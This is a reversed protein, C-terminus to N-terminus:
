IEYLGTHTITMKKILIEDGKGDLTGTECKTIIGQDIFFNKFPIGHVDLVMITIGIIPVGPKLALDVLLNYADSKVGKELVLTEAQKKQDPLFIPYPNGGEPIQTLSYSDSINSVRAFGIILPGLAVIFRNNLLLDNQASM